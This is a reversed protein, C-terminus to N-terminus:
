GGSVGAQSRPISGAGPTTIGLANGLVGSTGLGASPWVSGSM